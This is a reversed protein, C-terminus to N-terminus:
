GGTASVVQAFEGERQPFQLEDAAHLKRHDLLLLLVGGPRVKFSRLVLCSHLRM